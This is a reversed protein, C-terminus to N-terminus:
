RLQCLGSSWCCHPISFHFESLISDLLCLTHLLSLLLSFYNHRALWLLPDEHIFFKVERGLFKWDLFSVILPSLSRFVIVTEVNSTSLSRMNAYIGLAFMMTYLLYPKMFKWNLTDVSIIGIFNCGYIFFLTAWIQVTVVLSPLPIFHLTLKNILVLSGSCLSYLVVSLVTESRDSLLM